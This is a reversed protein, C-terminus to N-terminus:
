DTREASQSWGGGHQSWDGWETYWPEALTAMRTKCVQTDKSAQKNSLSLVQSGSM